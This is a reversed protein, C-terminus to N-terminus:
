PLLTIVIDVFPAFHCFTRSAATISRFIFQQPRSEIEQPADVVCVHVTVVQVFALVQFVAGATTSSRYVSKTAARVGRM